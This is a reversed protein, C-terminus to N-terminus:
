PASLFTRPADGQGNHRVRCGPYYIYIYETIKKLTVLLGNVTVYWILGGLIPPKRLSKCGTSCEDFLHLFTMLSTGM